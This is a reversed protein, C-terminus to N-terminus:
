VFGDVLTVTVCVDIGEAISRVMRSATSGHLYLREGSRAYGTPMVYPQGDVAFGVHCVFGEDLIAHVVARDYIARKAVRRVDTRSTATYQDSMVRRYGSPPSQFLALELVISWDVMCTGM